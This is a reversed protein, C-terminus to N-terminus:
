WSYEWEKVKGNVKQASNRLVMHINVSSFSFKATAQKYGGYFMFNHMKGDYNHLSPLSIYLFLKCCLQQKAYKFRNSKQREWQQLWQPMKLDRIALPLSIYKTIICVSCKQHVHIPIHLQDFLGNNVFRMFIKLISLISLVVFLFDLKYLQLAILNQGFHFYVHNDLNIDILIRMHFRSKM